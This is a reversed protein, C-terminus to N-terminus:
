VTALGDTGGFLVFADNVLVVSSDLIVGPNTSQSTPEQAHWTNTTCDFIAVGTRTPNITYFMVFASSNLQFAQVRGFDFFPLHSAKEDIHTWKQEFLDFAWAERSVGLDKPLYWVPDFPHVYGGTVFVTRNILVAASCGAPTPAIHSSEDSVGIVGDFRPSKSETTASSSSYSPFVKTWVHSSINLSWVANTASSTNVATSIFGGIVIFENGDCVASAAWLGPPTNTTEFLSWQHKM